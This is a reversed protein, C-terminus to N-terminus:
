LCVQRIKDALRATGRACILKVNYISWVKIVINSGLCSWCYSSAVRRMKTHCSFRDSGQTGGTFCYSWFQCRILMSNWILAERMVIGQPGDDMSTPDSFGWCWKVLCHYAVLTWWGLGAQISLDSLLRSVLGMAINQKSELRVGNPMLTQSPRHLKCIRPMLLYM